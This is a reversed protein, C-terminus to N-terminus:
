ESEETITIETRPRAKDYEGRIALRIHRLDDDEIIGAKTLGDLLLKGCYNDADRRRRDPFWYTIEVAARKYPEAPRDKCALATYYVARTWKAKEARYTWGSDKGLVTNLSPPVGRLTITM